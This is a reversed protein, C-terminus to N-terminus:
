KQTRGNPFPKLERGEVHPCCKVQVKKTHASARVGCNQYKWVVLSSYERKM